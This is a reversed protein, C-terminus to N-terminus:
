WSTFIFMRTQSQRSDKGPGAFQAGSKNQIQTLHSLKEGGALSHAWVLLGWLFGLRGLSVSGEQLWKPALQPCLQFTQNAPPSIMNIMHMQEEAEHCVTGM